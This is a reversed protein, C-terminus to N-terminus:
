TSKVKSTLIARVRDIQVQTEAAREAASNSLTGNGERLAMRSFEVASRTSVIVDHGKASMKM